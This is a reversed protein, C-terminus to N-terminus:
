RLPALGGLLLYRKFVSSAIQVPTRNETNVSDPILDYLAKRKFYLQSLSNYSGALPRPTKDASIRNWFVDFPASLVFSIGKVALSKRNVESEIAGGGTSIVANEISEVSKIVDIELARFGDVGYQDFIKEIPLGSAQVVLSDTEVLQFGFSSSLERAITTKGAGMFGFLVINSFVSGKM